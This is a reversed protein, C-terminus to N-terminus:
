PPSMSRSKARAQASRHVKRGFLPRFFRGAHKRHDTKVTHCLHDPMGSHPQRQGYQGRM